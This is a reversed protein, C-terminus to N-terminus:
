GDKLARAWAGAGTSLPEPEPTALSLIPQRRQCDSIPPQSFLLSPGRCTKFVFQHHRRAKHVQNSSLYRTSDGRESTSAIEQLCFYIESVFTQVSPGPTLIVSMPCSVFLRIILLCRLSVKTHKCIYKHKIIKNTFVSYFKIIM